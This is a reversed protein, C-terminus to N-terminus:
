VGEVCTYIDRKVVTEAIRMAEIEMRMMVVVGFKYVESMCSKRLVMLRFLMKVVVLIGEGCFSEDMSLDAALMDLDARRLALIM